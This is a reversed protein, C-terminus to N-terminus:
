RPESKKLQATLWPEAEDLARFVEITESSRRLAAYTCARGYLIPDTALIAVPGRPGQGRQREAVESM